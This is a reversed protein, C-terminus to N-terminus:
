YMTILRLQKPTPLYELSILMKMKENKENQVELMLNFIMNKHENIRMNYIYNQFLKNKIINTLTEKSIELDAKKFQNSKQEKLYGLKEEAIVIECQSIDIINNSLVNLSFNLDKEFGKFVKREIKYSLFLDFYQSQLSKNIFGYKEFDYGKLNHNEINSVDDEHCQIILNKYKIFANILMTSVLTKLISDYTLDVYGVYGIYKELNNNFKNANSQTMNNIYVLYFQSSHKYDFNDIKSLSNKLLMYLENQNYNRGLLDGNLISHNTEKDFLPLIQEFVENGYGNSKIKSSDFIFLLEQKELSPVLCTKLNQYKIKKDELINNLEEHLRNIELFMEYSNLDALEQMIELMVNDRADLTFIESM